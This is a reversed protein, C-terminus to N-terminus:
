TFPLSKIITIVIAFALWVIATWIPVKIMYNFMPHVNPLEFFLVMAILDWANMGTALADMEIGIFFDLAKSNWAHTVNDYTEPDYYFSADLHTHSCELKYPLYNDYDQELESISLIDERNLGEKNIWNMRHLIKFFWWETTEHTFIIELPTQNAKTYSM